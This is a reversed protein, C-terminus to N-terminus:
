MSLLQRSYAGGGVKVAFDHCWGWYEDVYVRVDDTGPTKDALVPEIRRKRL